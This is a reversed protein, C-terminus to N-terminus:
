DKVPSWTFGMQPVSVLETSCLVTTSPFGAWWGTELQMSLTSGDAQRHSQSPFHAFSVTSRPLPESGLSSPLWQFMVQCLLLQPASDGAPYAMEHLCSQAEGQEEQLQM